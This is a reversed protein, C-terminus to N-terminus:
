KSFEEPQNAEFVQYLHPWVHTARENIIGSKSAEDHDQIMIRRAARLLSKHVGYSARGDRRTRVIASGDEWEIREIQDWGTITVGAAGEELAPQEWQAGKGGHGGDDHRKAELEALSNSERTWAYAGTRHRGGTRPSGEMKREIAHAIQFLAGTEGFSLTELENPSNQSLRGARKALWILDEARIGAKSARWELSSVQAPTGTRRMARNKALVEEDSGRVDSVLELALTLERSYPTPPEYRGASGLGQASGERELDHEIQVTMPGELEEMRRELEEIRSFATGLLERLQEIGITSEACKPSATM